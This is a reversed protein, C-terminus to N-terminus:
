SRRRSRESEVKAIELARKLGHFVRSGARRSIPACALRFTWSILGAEAIERRGLLHVSEDFRRRFGLNDRIFGSAIDQFRQSVRRILLKAGHPAINDHRQSILLGM